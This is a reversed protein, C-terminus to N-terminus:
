ALPATGLMSPREAFLAYWAALAPRSSRWNLTTFRFDLYGLACGVGIEVVSPLETLLEGAEAELADLSREIAAQKRAIWAPSQESAPRRSELLISVAAEQLGDALNARKLKAWRASGRPLSTLTGGRTQLYEIILDSGPLNEGKETTLAPIQGLPNVALFAAENASWDTFIEEVLGELGLELITVRVKRAFPSTKSSFLKMKM